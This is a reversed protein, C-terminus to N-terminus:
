QGQRKLLSKGENKVPLTCFKESSCKKSKSQLKLREVKEALASFRFNLFIENRKGRNSALFTQYTQRKKLKLSFQAVHDSLFNIQFLRPNRGNKENKFTIM